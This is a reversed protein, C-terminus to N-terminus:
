EISLRGFLQGGYIQTLAAVCALALIAGIGGIWLGHKLKSSQDQPSQSARRCLVCGDSRAADFHLGHLACRALQGPEAV